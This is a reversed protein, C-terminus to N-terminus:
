VGKSMLNFAEQNLVNKCNPCIIATPPIPITCFKCPITEQATFEVWEKKIGLVKAATRQLDSVALMNRNRNWDADAMACLNRYWQNVRLRAANIKEQHYEHIEEINLRGQVWFLSPGADESTAVHAGNYDECISRAMEMPSTTQKITSGPRGEDIVPNPIYHLGEGVHLVSIDGNEAAPVIYVSPLMHPKEEHLKFPLLSVVTCGMPRLHPPINKKRGDEKKSSKSEVEADESTEFPNLGM